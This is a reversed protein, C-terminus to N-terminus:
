GLIDELLSNVYGMGSDNLIIVDFTKKYLELNKDQNENLFGIKIINDYDFGSVMKVDDPSDGLLIVNKRDKIVGYVPTERISTEDKNAVHIIPEKVGIANGDEDWIYSNSIIHINDYALKEKELYMSISDGGLGNSSIIAVPVDYKQLVEFFEPLGERIHVNGSKVADEIDKKKLGSEILLKFHETWWAHMEDRKEKESIKPDIEKPHYTDFLENAKEAYEPSMYNGNRLVSILSPTKIGDVNAKTLTRNFDTVVHVTDSGSEVIKDKLADLRKKDSIIVDALM